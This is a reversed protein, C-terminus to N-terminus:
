GSRTRAHEGEVGDDQPTSREVFVPPHERQGVRIPVCPHEPAGVAGRAEVRVGRAAAHPHRRAIWEISAVRTLNAIPDGGREILNHVLRAPVGVLEDPGALGQRDVRERADPRRRHIQKEVIVFSAAALAPVHVALERREWECVAREVEREARVEQKEVRLLQSLVKV